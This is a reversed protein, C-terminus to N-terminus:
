TIQYSLFAPVMILVMVVMLMMIMPLLLKTGAEEGLQRIQLQHDEFAEQAEKELMNQLNLSGKKMHICLLSCFKRYPVLACRRGLEELAREELVGNDLNRVFIGLEEQLPTPHDRKKDEYIRRIAGTVSMGAGVLLALSSVFDPYAFRLKKQREEYLKDLDKDMGKYILVACLLSLLLIYLPAMDMQERYQVLVGNVETPLVLRDTERQRLDEALLLESLIRRFEEEKTLQVPYVCVEYDYEKVAEGYCLQATVMVTQPGKLDKNQVEGSQRILGYDSCTYFIEMDTDRYKEPFVLNSRVCSLSENEGAMATELWVGAEAFVEELEEKSYKKKAVQIDLEVDDYEESLVTVPIMLDQGTQGDRLIEGEASVQLDQRESVLLVLCLFVGVLSVMMVLRLKKRYFALLLEEVNQSPYLRHLREKIYPSARKRIRKELWKKM